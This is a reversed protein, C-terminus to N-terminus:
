IALIGSQIIGLRANSAACHGRWGVGNLSESGFGSFPFSSHLNLPHTLIATVFPLGLYEAVSGGAFEAQDVILADLQESGIAMPADRLVIQSNQRIREFVFEMAELGHLRSLKEDM